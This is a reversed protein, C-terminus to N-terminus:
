LAQSERRLWNLIEQTHEGLKPPPNLTNLAEIGDPLAMFSRVGKTGAKNLFWSSPGTELVEDISRIPSAPVSLQNLRSLIEETLQEAMKEALAAQLLVRNKVRGANECFRDDKFLELSLAKCLLKFQKDNGIALMVQGDKTEYVDGYPAINPHANGKRKPVTGAHLWNAGQNALSSVAVDLLSVGVASGKGNSGRKILALLLGEKLQHAALVDILAVPMKLPGGEQEGNISMFGSEAQIAADYGARPDNPGYGTIYGYILRPNLQNLREYDLGLKEADGPKYSVIVIDSKAILQYLLAKSAEDKVDLLVSRKGWNVASFYASVSGEGTEEPVRWSRTVDGGTGPNEVKIVEAGLEAFFQGVSPGALVSALEVVKLHEFM